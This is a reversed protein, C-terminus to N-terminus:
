TARRRTEEALVRAALRVGDFQAEFEIKNDRQIDRGVPSTFHWTQGVANVELVSCRGTEIHRVLDVGLLGIDPFARAAARALEMIEEDNDLVWTGDRSNAVVSKGDGKWDWRGELPTRSRNAEVRACFLVKGFLSLQYLEFGRDLEAAYQERIYFSVDAGGKALHYGYVQGVAGAGVILVNM